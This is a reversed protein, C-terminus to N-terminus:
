KNNKDEIAQITGVFTTLVGNLIGVFSSIVGQLSGVVMSLLEKRSPLKSLVDVDKKEFFKGDFYVGKLILKENNKSYDVLFKLIKILDDNSFFALTNNKLINEYGKINNADFAKELINNKVVKPTGGESEVKRRVEEIESVTLGKFDAMIVGCGKELYSSVETLMQQKKEKNGM